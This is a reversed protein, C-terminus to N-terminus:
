FAEALRLLAQRAHDRQPLSLEEVGETYRAEEYLAALEQVTTSLVPRQMCWQHAIAQHNWSQVQRGLTLLALYDFAQVLETRTLVSEPRVPWPGLALEESASNSKKRRRLMQWAALAVLLVFLLWYTGTGFTPLSTDVDPLNPAHVNPLNVAGMGPLREQWDIQPAPLNKLREMAQQGLDFLKDDPLRLLDSWGNGPANGQNPKNMSARLDDLAHQWAPSNRLWDGVKSEEARKMTREAIKALPDEQPKNVIPPKPPPSLTTKLSTEKEKAQKLLAELKKHVEKLNDPQKHQPNQKIWDRLAKQLEPDRSTWDQLAKKFQPDDLKLNKIKDLHIPLKQPDASMQKIIDKLPGLQKEMQLWNKLQAEYNPDIPFTAYRGRPPEPEQQAFATAALMGIALLAVLGRALIDMKM